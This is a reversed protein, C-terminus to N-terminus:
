QVTEIEAIELKSALKVKDMDKLVPFLAFFALIKETPYGESQMHKALAIAQDFDYENARDKQYLGGLKAFKDICVDSTKIADLSFSRVDVHRIITRTPEISGTKTRELLIDLTDTKKKPEGTATLDKYDLYVVSVEDSRPFLCIEGTEPHALYDRAAARLEKAFLLQESFEQHADIAREIRKEEVLAKIDLKLCNETHRRVSERASEDEFFQCSIARFSDGRAIRTNIDAVRENTCVSCKRGVNTKKSM